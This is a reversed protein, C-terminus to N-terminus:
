EDAFGRAFAAGAASDDDVNASNNPLGAAERSAARFKAPNMAAGAGSDMWIQQAEGLEKYAFGEASQDGAARATEMRARFLNVQQEMQLNATVMEPSLHKGEKLEMIYRQTEPDFVSNAEMELSAMMNAFRGSASGSRVESLTPLLSLYFMMDFDSPRSGQRAKLFISVFERSMSMYLAAEQSQIGIDRFAIQVADLGLWGGQDV